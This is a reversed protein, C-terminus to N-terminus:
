IKTIVESNIYLRDLQNNMEIVLHLPLIENDVDIGDLGMADTCGVDGLEFGIAIVSHSYADFLQIIVDMQCHCDTWPAVRFVSSFILPKLSTLTSFTLSAICFHRTYKRLEIEPICNLWGMCGEADPKM